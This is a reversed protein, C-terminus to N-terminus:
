VGSHTPRICVRYTNADTDIGVILLVDDVTAADDVSRAGGVDCTLFLKAQSVTGTAPPYEYVSERSIDILVSSEGDAAPASSLREAVVGYPIDGAAAQKIYGATALTVMDGVELPATTSSDVKAPVLLRRGSRFGYKDTAM